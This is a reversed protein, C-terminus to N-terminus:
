ISLFFLYLRWFILPFSKEKMIAMLDTKCDVAQKIIRPM